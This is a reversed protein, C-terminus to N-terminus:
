SVITSTYLSKASISSTHRVTVVITGGFAGSGAALGFVPDMARPFQLAVVDYLGSSVLRITKIQHGAPYKVASHM